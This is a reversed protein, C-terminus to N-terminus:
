LKDCFAHRCVKLCAKCIHDKSKPPAQKIEQQEDLSQVM